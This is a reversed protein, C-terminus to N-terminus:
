NFVEASHEPGLPDRGFKNPGETGKLVTLIL